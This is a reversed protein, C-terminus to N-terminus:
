FDEEDSVNDSKKTTKKKVSPKSQKFGDHKQFMSSVDAVEGSDEADDTVAKIVQIGLPRVRMGGKPSKPSYPKLAAEVIVQTGSRLNLGEDLPTLDGDVCPLPFEQYKPKATCRVTISGDDNEIWPENYTSRGGGNDRYWSVCNEFNNRLLDRLEDSDHDVRVKLRFDSPEGKYTPNESFSPVFGELEGCIKIQNRAM